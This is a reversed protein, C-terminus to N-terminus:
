SLLVSERYDHGEHVEEWEGKEVFSVGLFQEIGMEMVQPHLITLLRFRFERDLRYFDGDFVVYARMYENDDMDYRPVVVIPDFVFEGKYHKDYHEELVKRILDAVRERDEHSVQPAVVKRAKRHTGTLSTDLRAYLAATTIHFPM